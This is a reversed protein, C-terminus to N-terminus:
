AGETRSEGTKGNKTEVEPHTQAGHIKRLIEELQNAVFAEFEPRIEATAGVPSLQTPDWVAIAGYADKRKRHAFVRQYLAPSIGMFSRFSVLKESSRDNAHAEGESRIERHYLTATLSKPYPEIYVVESIGAAIIHRACIHCPYTTCYLTAGKVARGVMAAQSLAHMEAHVVRGFEILNRIRAEATLEKHEGHILQEALQVAPEDKAIFNAQQMVEILESISRKIENFNPDHQEIKDRNDDISDSRGEYFFGGGPLPVENCGTAIISADDGVIVAGFQRSLDCSRLATAKAVFMMYEDLTPTTFPEGFVLEIFRKIQKSVDVKSDATDIFFDARPFTERVSQGHEGAGKQDKTILM